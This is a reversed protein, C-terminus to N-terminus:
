ALAPCLRQVSRSNAYYGELFRENVATHRERWGDDAEMLRKAQVNEGAMWYGKKASLTAAESGPRPYVAAATAPAGAAPATTSGAVTSSTGATTPPLPSPASPTRSVAASPPLDIPLGTTSPRGVKEESGVESPRAIAERGGAATHGAKARTDSGEKGAGAEKEALALLRKSSRSPGLPVPLAKPARQRDTPSPSAKRKRPRPPPPAPPPPSPADMILLGGEDEDSRPGDATSLAHEVQQKHQAQQQYQVQRGRQGAFAEALTRSPAVPALHEARPPRIGSTSSASATSSLNLTPLPVTLTQEASSGSSGSAPAAAAAFSSPALGEQTVDSAGASASSGPDVSGPTWRYTSWPLLRGARVSDVIWAPWVVKLQRYEKM